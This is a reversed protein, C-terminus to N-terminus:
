PSANMTASRMARATRCARCQRNKWGTRKNVHFYTNAEDYPHGQPCHTKPLNQNRWTGQDLADRMNEAHTGYRLNSRRNNSPDGDLHRIEQGNPRPGVFALMVAQHAWVRQVKGGVTPALMYGVYGRGHESPKLM